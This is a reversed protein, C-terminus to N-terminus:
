SDEKGNKHLDIYDLMEPPVGFGIELEERTGDDGTDFFTEMREKLAHSEKFDDSDEEKPINPHFVALMFKRFVELGAPHTSAAFALVTCMHNIRNMEDRDRSKKFLLILLAGALVIVIVILTAM